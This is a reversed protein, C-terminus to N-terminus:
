AALGGQQRGIKQGVRVELRTVTWLHWLLTVKSAVNVSWNRLRTRLVGYETDMWLEMGEDACVLSSGFLITHHNCLVEM